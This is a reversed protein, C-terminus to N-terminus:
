SLRRIRIVPQRDADLYFAGLAGRRISVADGIRSPRFSRRIEETRWLSGDAMEYLWYGPGLREVTRVRYVMEGTAQEGQEARARRQERQAASFGFDAERSPQALAPAAGPGAADAQPVAVPPSLDTATPAQGPAPQLADVQARAIADYCQVRQTIDAIALCGTLDPVQARPTAPLIAVVLAGGTM